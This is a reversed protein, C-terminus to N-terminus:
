AKVGATKGKEAILMKLKHQYLESKGNFRTSFEQWAKRGIIKAQELNEELDIMDKYHEFLNIMSAELEEQGAEAVPKVSQVAPKNVVPEDIGENLWNLLEEGTQQTIKFSKGDFLTTRDKSSTAYHETSIDLVATFEYDMGDRQIPALGVKVPATVVKRGNDQEKMVYEAKSRMTAIIHCTSNLMADVLKNHEPTVKRWATYSNSRPDAKTVDSVMDLAGGDGAWAHTLSDIIIVEYGAKEAAKIAEVYRAPTFPPRFEAVDYDFEKAYLDASRSETDIVCTKGGLGKAILLASFTKGAGAVGCLALRLKAKRREAKRFQFM